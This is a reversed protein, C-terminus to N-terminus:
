REGEGKKGEVWEGEERKGRKDDADRMVGGKKGSCFIGELQLTLRDIQTLLDNARTKESQYKKVAEELTQDVEGEGPEEYKLEQMQM